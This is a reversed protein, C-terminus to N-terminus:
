DEEDLLRLTTGDGDDEPAAATAPETQIDEPPRVAAPVLDGEYLRRLYYASNEPVDVSEGDTIYRRADDELPVKLGPRATVMM